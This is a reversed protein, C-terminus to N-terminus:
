AEVRGTKLHQCCERPTQDGDEQGQRRCVSMAVVQSSLPRQPDMGMRYLIGSLEDRMVDRQDDRIGWSRRKNGGSGPCDMLQVRERESGVQTVRRKRDM